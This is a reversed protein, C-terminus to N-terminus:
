WRIRAGNRLDRKRHARLGERLAWGGVVDLARSARVNVAEELSLVVQFAEDNVAERLRGQRRRIRVAGRRLLEDATLLLDIKAALRAPDDLDDLTLRAPPEHAHPCM